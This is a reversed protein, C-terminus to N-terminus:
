LHVTGSVCEVTSYAMSSQFFSILIERTKKRKGSCLKWTNGGLDAQSILLEPRSLLFKSGLKRSLLIQATAEEGYGRM